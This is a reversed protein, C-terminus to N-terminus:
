HLARKNSLRASPSLGKGFERGRQSTNIPKRKSHTLTLNANIHERAKEIKTAYVEVLAIGTGTYQNDQVRESLVRQCTKALELAAGNKFSVRDGKGAKRIDALLYQIVISATVRDAEVGVIFHMKDSPNYFYDCGYVECVASYVIRVWPSTDGSEFKMGVAESTELDTMELNHMELMKNAMRMATEAENDAAGANNALVFLKRIKDIIRKSMNSEKETLILSSWESPITM